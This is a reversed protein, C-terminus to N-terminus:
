TRPNIMQAACHPACTYCRAAATFPHILNAESVQGLDYQCTLTAANGMVVAEPVFIKLDKLCFATQIPLSSFLIFPLILLCRRKAEDAVPLMYRIM